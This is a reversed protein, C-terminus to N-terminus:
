ARRAACAERLKGARYAVDVIRRLTGPSLRRLRKRVYPDVEGWEAGACPGPRFGEALEGHVHNLAHAANFALVMFNGAERCGWEGTEHLISRILISARRSM